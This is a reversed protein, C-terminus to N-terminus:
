EPLSFLSFKCSEDMDIDSFTALYPQLMVPRVESNRFFQDPAADGLAIYHQAELRKM